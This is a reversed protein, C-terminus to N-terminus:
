SVVEYLDQWKLLDYIKSIDGEVNVFGEQLDKVNNKLVDVASILTATQAVLGTTLNDGYLVYNIDTVQDVLGTDEDYLTNEVKSLRTLTDAIDIAGDHEEIWAAIEELTDFTEPAGGVLAAVHEDVIDEISTGIPRGALLKNIDDDHASKNEKVTKDLASVVASLAVTPDAWTGDGRLYLDQQGALPQPVLGSAGDQEPTAGKMISIIESLINELPTDKWTKTNVDYALVAGKPIGASLVVDTLEALSDVNATDGDAILKAGLYLQGTTAGEEAIFYLTDSNKEAINEWATPTGRLFKVYNGLRVDYAM